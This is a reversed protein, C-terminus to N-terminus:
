FEVELRGVLADMLASDARWLQMVVLLRPTSSRARTDRRVVPPPLGQGDIKLSIESVTVSRVFAMM